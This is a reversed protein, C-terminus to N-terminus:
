RRGQHVRDYALPLQIERLGEGAWRANGVRTDPFEQAHVNMEVHLM